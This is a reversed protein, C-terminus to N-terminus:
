ASKQRHRSTQRRRSHPWRTQLGGGPSFPSVTLIVLLSCRLVFYFVRLYPEWCRCCLALAVKELMELCWELYDRGEDGQTVAEKSASVLSDVVRTISKKDAHRLMEEVAESAALGRVDGAGAGLQMTAYLVDLTEELRSHFNSQVGKVTNFVLSRRSASRTLRGFVISFM